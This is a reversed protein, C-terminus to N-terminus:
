GKEFAERLERSEDRKTVKEDFDACINCNKKKRFFLCKNIKKIKPFIIVKCEFFILFYIVRRGQSERTEREDRM